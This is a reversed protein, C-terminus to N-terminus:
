EGIRTFTDEYVVQWEGGEGRKMSTVDKWTNGDVVQFADRVHITAGDPGQSRAWTVRRHTHRDFEGVCGFGTSGFTFAGLVYLRENFPDYGYFGQGNISEDGSSENVVSITFKVISRNADFWAYEAVYYLAQGSPEDRLTKSRFRGIYPDFVHIDDRTASQPTDGAFEDPPECPASPSAAEPAVAAPEEAMPASCAVVLLIAAALREM